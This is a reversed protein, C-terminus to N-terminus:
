KKKSDKEAGDLVQRIVKSIEKKFIPKSLFAKIGMSLAKQEDIKSSFGTCLIIPIDPKIQMLQGALMDGNMHPMTMDTIVLDFAEPNLEFLSLADVSSTQGVVQYGLSTLVQKFM